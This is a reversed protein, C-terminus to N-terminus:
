TQGTPLFNKRDGQYWVWKKTDVDKYQVYIHYNVRNKLIAMTAEGYSKEFTDPRRKVIVQYVKTPSAFDTEIWYDKTAKADAAGIHAATSSDLRPNGWNKDWQSMVKYPNGLDVM